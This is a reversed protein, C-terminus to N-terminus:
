ALRSSPSCRFLRCRPLWAPSVTQEASLTFPALLASRVSRGVSLSETRFRIDYVSGQKALM